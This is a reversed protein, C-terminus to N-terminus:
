LIINLKRDAAAKTIRDVLTQKHPNEPMHKNIDCLLIFKATEFKESKHLFDYLNLMVEEPIDSHSLHLFCEDSSLHSFKNYLIKNYDLFVIQNSNLDKAYIINNNEHEDYIYTDLKPSYHKLFQGPSEQSIKIEEDLSKSNLENIMTHNTNIKKYIEVSFPLNNEQLFTEIEFPSIAGMRLIQIKKEEHVIKIVTSEMRFSSVGGNLIKVPFEIFDEYVHYPNVPSIHCFKNASPAAIPVGSYDILKKAIENKPYRIGIYETNATLIPSIINFNAKLVMTLPGPWFKDSLLKFLKHTEEDINILKKGMEVSTVHVILPDSLPRGKYEFIKKVAEIDLANAGLGYVTETPFGVVQGLKISEACERLNEETPELIKALDIRNDNKSSNM